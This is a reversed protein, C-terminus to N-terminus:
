VRKCSDPMHSVSSFRLLKQEVNELKKIYIYQSSSNDVDRKIVDVNNMNFFHVAQSSHVLM